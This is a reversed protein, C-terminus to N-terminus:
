QLRSMSTPEDRLQSLAAIKAYCRVIARRFFLETERSSVPASGIRL